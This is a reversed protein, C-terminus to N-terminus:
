HKDRALTIVAVVFLGITAFATIAEYTVMADGGKMPLCGDM